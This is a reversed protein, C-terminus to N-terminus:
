FRWFAIITWGIIHNTIHNRSLFKRLILGSYITQKKHGEKLIAHPISTISKNTFYPPMLRSLALRRIHNVSMRCQKYSTTFATTWLARTSCTQRQCGSLIFRKVKRKYTRNRKTCLAYMVNDPLVSASQVLLNRNAAKKYINSDEDTFKYQFSLLFLHELSM